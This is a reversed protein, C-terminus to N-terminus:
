QSPNYFSSSFPPKIAGAIRSSHFIKCVIRSRPQSMNISAVGSKVISQSTTPIFRTYLKILLFDM